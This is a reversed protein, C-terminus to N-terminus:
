IHRILVNYCLTLLLLSSDTESGPRPPLPRPQNASHGKSLGRSVLTGDFSKARRQEQACNYPPWWGDVSMTAMLLCCGCADPVVDRLWSFQIASSCTGGDPWQGGSKVHRRLPQFPNQETRRVGYLVSLFLSLRGSSSNMGSHSACRPLPLLPRASDCCRSHAFSPAFILQPWCEVITGSPCTSNTGRAFPLWERPSLPDFSRAVTLVLPRQVRTGHHATM